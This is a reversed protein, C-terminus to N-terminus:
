NRVILPLYVHRGNVIVTDLVSRDNDMDTLWATNIIPPALLLSGTGTIGATVQFRITQVTDTPLIGQWLVAHSTPSYVAMPTIASTLSGSIYSVTDPLPDWLRVSLGSGSLTLTYTLIDNYYLESDPMAQKDLLLPPPTIRMAYKLPQDDVTHTIKYSMHSNGAPDLVVSGIQIGSGEDVTEIEWTNGTWYAYKLATRNDDVYGIHPYNNVDLALATHMMQYAEGRMSDVDEIEWSDGTWKAYRLRDDTRSHYSIHPYGNTDLALSNSRGVFGDSDVVQIDWASGMWRAYKLNGAGDDHYSIHPRDYTDLKLSTRYWCDDINITEISWENSTWYAYRLQRQFDTDQACFAFHPSGNSDLAFSGGSHGWRNADAVVDDIIWSNGAWYTYRLKQYQHGGYGIHPRGADDLALSQLIWGTDGLTDVVEIAWQSGTWRAYSLDHISPSNTQYALHPYNNSDLVLTNAWGVETDVTEIHWTVSRPSKSLASNGAAFMAPGDSSAVAPTITNEDRLQSETGRQAKSPVLILSILLSSFLSLSLLIATRIKM